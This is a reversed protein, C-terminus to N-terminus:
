AGWRVGDFGEAGCETRGARARARARLTRAVRLSFAINPDSESGFM